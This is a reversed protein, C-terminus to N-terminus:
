AFVVICECQVICSLYNNLTSTLQDTGKKRNSNDNCFKETLATFGVYHFYIVHNYYQTMQECAVCVCVLLAFDRCGHSVCNNGGLSSASPHRHAM